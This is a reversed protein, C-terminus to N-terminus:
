ARAVLVDFAYSGSGVTLEVAGFADAWKGASVGDVGAVFAGNAFVQTGGETVAVGSATTAGFGPLRVTATSGVPITVAYSLMKKTPTTPVPAPTGGKCSVQVKLFKPTGFCPDGGFNQSSAKLVCSSKGVCAKTIVAMSNNSNCKPNVHFGGNSGCTGDPTGFSAFLVRDITAGPIPCSLHAASAPGGPRNESVVACTPDSQNNVCVYSARLAGRATEMSATASSLRPCIGETAVTQWGPHLGDYRYEAGWSDTSNAKMQPTWVQPALVIKDFGRGGNALDLQIGALYKYYWESNAGFM